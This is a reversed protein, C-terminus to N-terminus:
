ETCKFPKENTHIRAHYVLNWSKTFEKRCDEFECIFVKQVKNTYSDYRKVIKHPYQEIALGKHMNEGTAVSSVKYNMSIDSLSSSIKIKELSETEELTLNEHHDDTELHFEVNQNAMTQECVSAQEFSTSKNYNSSTPSACSFSLKPSVM